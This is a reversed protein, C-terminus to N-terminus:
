RTRGVGLRKCLVAARDRAEPGITALEHKVLLYGHWPDGDGADYCIRLLENEDIRTTDLAALARRTNPEHKHIDGGAGGPHNKSPEQVTGQAVAVTPDNAVGVTPDNAVGVTPDSKSRAVTRDPRSAALALDWVTPRRDGRRLKVLQQDGKRILGADRLAALHREVTRRTVNLKEAITEVHPWAGTGDDGAHDALVLLVRFAGHPVDQTPADYLAWLMARLSM